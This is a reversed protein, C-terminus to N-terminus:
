IELKIEDFLVRTPTPTSFCWGGDYLNVGMIKPLGDGVPVWAENYIFQDVKRSHTIIWTGDYGTQYWAHPFTGNRGDIWASVKGKIETMTSMNWQGGESSKCGDPNNYTWQHYWLSPSCPGRGSVCYGDNDRRYWETGHQTWYKGGNAHYYVQASTTAPLMLAIFLAASVIIKQLAM